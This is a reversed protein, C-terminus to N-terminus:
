RSNPVAGTSPRVVYFHHARYDDIRHSEERVTSLGVDHLIQSFAPLTLRKLHFVDDAIEPRTLAQFWEPSVAPKPAHPSKEGIWLDIVGTPKLVRAAEALAIRPDVFHDLSTAFVAHDFVADRFPLYEGLAKLQIYEPATAGALPDVGVFFTGPAHGDFYTPWSQPGSGIDLVTGGFRCFRSFAECDARPGVGLNRAPELQYATLGNAQVTEWADWAASWRARHLSPILCWTGYEGRRYVDGCGGCTVEAASGLALERRCNPCALLADLRAYDLTPM